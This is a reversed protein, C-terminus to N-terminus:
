EKFNKTAWLALAVKTKLGLKRRLSAVDKKVTDTALGLDSAIRGYTKDALVGRLLAKQRPSLDTTSV